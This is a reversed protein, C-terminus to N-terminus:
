YVSNGRISAVMKQIEEQLSVTLRQYREFQEFLEEFREDVTVDTTLGTVQKIQHAGRVLKKNFGHRGIM